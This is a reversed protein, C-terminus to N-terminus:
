SRQTTERKQTNPASTKGLYSEIGGIDTMELAVNSGNTAAIRVDMQLNGKAKDNGANRQENCNDDKLQSRLNYQCFSAKLDVVLKSCM